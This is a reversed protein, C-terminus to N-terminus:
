KTAKTTKNEIGSLMILKKQRQDSTAVEEGAAVEAIARYTIQRSM